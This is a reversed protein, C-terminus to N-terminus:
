RMSPLLVRMVTLVAPGLVVVMLAPFIFFVLPPVMKVSVKAGLEEARQRRKTRLEDSFNHLAQVISTGFRDTQVLIAVLAKIDDLGTRQALERLAEIRTKGVRMELNVMQLEASLEPHVIRLEESVKQLAQDLGLGAEVCIVLLDMADPLSLRLVKQRGKVRSMLWFEPAVWGIGAAILPIFVPNSESLGTWIVIVAFVVCCLVRVGNLVMVGDENRYGGRILLVQERSVKKGLSPPLIKGFSILIDKAQRGGKSTVNEEHESATPSLVHSLRRAIDVTQPGSAYVLVMVAFITVLFTIVVVIFLM